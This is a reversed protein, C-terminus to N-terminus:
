LQKKRNASLSDGGAPITTTASPKKKYTERFFFIFLVLFSFLISQGFIWSSLPGSCEYGQFYYFFGFFNAILDVVFQIIQFMTIYKKWWVDYGMSSIAYYYYMPVHVMCNAIMAIWQVAVENKMMVFVLVLTVCHHYVHLFIIPRKRLCIIITDFFNM